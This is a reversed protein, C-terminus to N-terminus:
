MGLRKSRIGPQLTPSQRLVISGDTHTMQISQKLPYSLKAKGIADAWLAVICGDTDTASRPCPPHARRNRGRKIIRNLQPRPTEPADLERSGTPRGAGPRKGGRAMVLRCSSSAKSCATLGM